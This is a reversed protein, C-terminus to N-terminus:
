RPRPLSYWATGEPGEDPDERERAMGLRELVRISAVNPLDTAARVREFGLEEFAYRIVADAAETAVGRGQYSPLVAFLLQLEPPEFFHRFGVLGLVSDAEVRRVAWLGCGLEEFLAESRGVEEEVWEVGVVADDLLWRRVRPDTLLDHLEPVDQRTVPTLRLHPTALGGAVAM